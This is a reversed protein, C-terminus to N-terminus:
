AINSIGIGQSRFVLGVTIGVRQLIPARFVLSAELSKVRHISEMMHLVTGRIRRRQQGRADVVRAHCRPLRTFHRCPQLGGVVAAPRNKQTDVVIGAM